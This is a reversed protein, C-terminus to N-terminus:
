VNVAAHFAGDVKRAVTHGHPAVALDLGVDVGSFDDDQALNFAVHRGAVPGLNAIFAREAAINDALADANFVSRVEFASDVDALGAGFLHIARGLGLRDRHSLREDGGASSSLSNGAIASCM